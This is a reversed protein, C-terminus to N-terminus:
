CKQALCNTRSATEGRYRPMSDLIRRGVTRNVVEGLKVEDADAPYEFSEFYLQALECVRDESMKDLSMLANQWDLM